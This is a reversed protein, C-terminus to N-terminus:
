EPPVSPPSAAPSSRDKGNPHLDDEDDVDYDFSRRFEESSRRLERMARGVRRGLEPLRRPGVVLLAVLLIVLLEAPGVNPFM